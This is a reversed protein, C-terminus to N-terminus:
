SLSKKRNMKKKRKRKRKKKRKVKKKKKKKKEKKKRRNKFSWIEACSCLPIKLIKLVQRYGIACAVKKPNIGKNIDKKNFPATPFM